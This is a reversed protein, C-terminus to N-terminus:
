RDLGSRPDPPRRAEGALVVGMQDALLVAVRRQERAPRAADAASVVLFYGLTTDGSRVPLVTSEDTPLGRRDVDIERGQRLVSGDPQLVAYRADLVRGRHFECRTVDLVRRIQEGVERALEDPPASHLAIAGAAQMVGDLYGARTGAREESRRGWLALEAVAAGIVVLLVTVELDDRDDIAFTHYPATLFFDFWAGASLAALVGAVRDGAAAVGVVVMVLLLVAAAPAVTVRGVSLVWSVLFPLVVAATLVVPRRYRMQLAWARPEM